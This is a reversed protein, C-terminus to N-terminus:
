FEAEEEDDAIPPRHSSSSSSSPAKNATAALGSNLASRRKSRPIINSADIAELDDAVFKTEGDDDDDDEDAASSSSGRKGLLSM